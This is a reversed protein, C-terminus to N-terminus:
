SPRSAASSTACSITLPAWVARRTPTHRACLHHCLDQDVRRQCRNGTDGQRQRKFVPVCMRHEVRQLNGKGSCVRPRGVEWKVEQQGRHEQFVREELKDVQKNKKGDGVGSQKKESKEAMSLVTLKLFGIGRFDFNFAAKRKLLDETVPGIVMLRTKCWSINRNKEARLSYVGQSCLSHKISKETKSLAQCM